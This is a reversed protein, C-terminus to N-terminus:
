KCLDALQDAYAALADSLNFGLGKAFNAPQDPLPMRINKFQELLV